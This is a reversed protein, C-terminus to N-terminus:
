NYFQQTSPPPTQAFGVGPQIAMDSQHLSCINNRPKMARVQAFKLWIKIKPLSLNTKSTLLLVMPKVTILLSPMTTSPWHYFLRMNEWFLLSDDMPLGANCNCTSSKAAAAASMNFPATEQHVLPVRRFSELMTQFSIIPFNFDEGFLEHENQKLGM